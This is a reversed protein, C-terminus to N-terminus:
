VEQDEVPPVVRLLQLFIVLVGYIISPAWLQFIKVSDVTYVVMYRIDGTDKMKVRRFSIDAKLADNAPNASNLRNLEAMGHETSTQPDEELFLGNLFAISQMHEEPIEKKLEPFPLLVKRYIALFRGYLSM